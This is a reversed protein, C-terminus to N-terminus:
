KTIDLKIIIKNDIQNKAYRCIAHVAAECGGQTGVGLRIPSFFDTLKTLAHQYVCKAALRRLTYRIALPRIGGSKEQLAIFKGGYFINNILQAFIESM